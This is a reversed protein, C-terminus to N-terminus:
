NKDKFASERSELRKALSVLLKPDKSGEGSLREAANTVKSIINKEEESKPVVRYFCGKHIVYFVQSEAKKEEETWYEPNVMAVDFVEGNETEFSFVKSGGDAAEGWGNFVKIVWDSFKKEQLEKWEARLEKPPMMVEEARMEAPM